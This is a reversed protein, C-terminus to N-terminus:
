VPQAGSRLFEEYSMDRKGEPKVRQIVLSGNELQADLIQVRIKKGSREFLAYTGVTTDFARIKLLNTYPDDHLLLLGDIKEYAPCLTAIEHNQERAEIDANLWHPLIDTLLKASEHTLEKELESARPPWPSPVFKKQAIIPGHDLDEDLLMISTGAERDDNRIAARVPSTGRWRPLLSFHVNLVGRKPTELVAKPLLKGYYIVVFVDYADRQMKEITDADYTEPQIVPIGRKEAWVKVPPPTLVMGRGQRKDPTTVVLSPVLGRSELDDLFVAALEPTGFFAFKPPNMKQKNMM